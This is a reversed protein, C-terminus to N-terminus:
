LSQINFAFLISFCPFHRILIMLGISSFIVFLVDILVLLHFCFSNFFANTSAAISDTHVMHIFTIYIAVKLVHALSSM